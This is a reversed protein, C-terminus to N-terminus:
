SRLSSVFAPSTLGRTGFSRKWGAQLERRQRDLGWTWRNGLEAVNILKGTLCSTNEVGHAPQKSRLANFLGRMPPTFASM